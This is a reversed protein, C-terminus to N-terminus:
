TRMRERISRWCDTNRKRKLGRRLAHVVHYALVNVFLRGAVRKAKRHYPPRLGMEGKFSRFTTKIDALRCYERVIRSDTWDVRSTRLLSTGRLGEREAYCRNPKWREVRAKAKEGAEAMVRYQNAM